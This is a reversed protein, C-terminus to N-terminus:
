KGIQAAIKESIYAQLEPISIKNLVDDSFAQMLLIKAKEAPIGRSRLFFLANEDLQGVTAGHSCKVDDAFIELQPKTNMTAQASLLVSKNSQFANTKQADEKVWIKGNFVGKAHDDLIGKYLENSYCNPKAHDVLSHNDIHQNGKGIYLGNLYAECYEEGLHINLNNRVIDGGWTFAGSTSNSKELHVIQTNGVHIAKQNEHQFKDQELISDQHLYFESYANTFSTEQGISQYSEIWKVQSAQELVVLHRYINFQPAQSSDSFHYVLIPKDVVKGKKVVLCIGEQALATNSNLIGDKFPTFKNFYKELVDQPTEKFSCLTAFKELGSIKSLQSQLEGNVLVLEYADVPYKELQATQTSLNQKFAVQNLAKLNTYKWEEEKITPLGSNQFAQFAEERWTKPLTTNSLAQEYKSKIIEQLSM